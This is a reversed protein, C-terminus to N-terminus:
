GEIGGQEIGAGADETLERDGMGADQGDQGDQRWKKGPGWHGFGM